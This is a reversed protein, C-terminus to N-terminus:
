PTGTGPAQAHHLNSVDNFATAPAGCAKVARTDLTVGDSIACEDFVSCYCTRVSVDAVGAALRPFLERNAPSQRLSVMAIDEGARVVTNTVVSYGYDLHDGAKYGCCASLLESMSRVPRGRYAMEVWRIKAPGVGTNRIGIEVGKDDRNLHLGIFPWSNAEVLRANAHAMEEMTQGHRVAVVLSIVSVALAAGAISFDVLRHGTHRPEPREIDVDM